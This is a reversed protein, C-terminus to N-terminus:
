VRVNLLIRNVLRLFLQNEVQVFFQTILPGVDCFFKRATRVIADFVVVVRGMALMLAPDVFPELM